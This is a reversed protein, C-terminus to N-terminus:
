ARLPEAPITACNLYSATVGAANLATTGPVFTVGANVAVRLAGFFCLNRRSSPFQLAVQGAALHATNVIPGPLVSVAGAANMYLGYLRTSGGAQGTFSGDTAVGYTPPLTLAISINDTIAKAAAFVGDIVFAIAATIRITGATTGNALAGSNLTYSGGQSLGNNDM